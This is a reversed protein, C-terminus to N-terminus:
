KKEFNRIRTGEFWWGFVILVILLVAAGGAIYMKRIIDAPDDSGHVSELAIWILTTVFLLSLLLGFVWLIANTEKAKEM